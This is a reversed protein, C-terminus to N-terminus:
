LSKRDLGDIEDVDIGLVFAVRRSNVRSPEAWGNLPLGTPNARSTLCIICSLFM